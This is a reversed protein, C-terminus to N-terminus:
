GISTLSPVNGEGIHECALAVARRRLDDDDEGEGRLVKVRKDGDGFSWGAVPRDVHGPFVYRTFIAGIGAGINVMSEMREVRKLLDAKM